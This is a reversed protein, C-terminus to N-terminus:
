TTTHTSSKKISLISTFMLQVEVLWVEGGDGLDLNMHIDPPQDYRAYFDEGKDFKNKLGYVKFNKALSRDVLTLILPDDFEALM